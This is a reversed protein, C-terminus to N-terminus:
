YKIFIKIPQYRLEYLSHRAFSGSNPWGSSVYFFFFEQTDSSLCTILWMVPSASGPLKRTETALCGLSHQWSGSWHLVERKFVWPLHHKRFFTAWPLQRDEVHGCVRTRACVVLVTSIFSPQAMKLWEIICLWSLFDPPWHSPLNSPPIVLEGKMCAQLTPPNADRSFYIYISMPILYLALCISTHNHHPTLIGRLTFCVLFTSSNM